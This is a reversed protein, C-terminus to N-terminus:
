LKKTAKFSPTLVRPRHGFLISSVDRGRVVLSFFSLQLSSVNPQAASAIATNLRDSLSAQQNLANISSVADLWEKCDDFSPAALVLSKGRKFKNSFQLNTAVRGAESQTANAAKSKSAKRSQKFEKVDLSSSFIQFVFPQRKSAYRRPSYVRSINFKFSPKRHKSARRPPTAQQRDSTNRAEIANTDDKLLSLFSGTYDNDVEESLTPTPTSAETTKLPHVVPKTLYAELYAGDYGSYLVFFYRKWVGTVSAWRTRLLLYGSKVSRLPSPQAGTNPPRATQDM